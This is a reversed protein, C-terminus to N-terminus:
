INLWELSKNKSVLRYIVLGSLVFMAGLVSLTFSTSGGTKPLTQNPDKIITAIEEIPPTQNEETEQSNAIDKGLVGLVRINGIGDNPAEAAYSDMPIFLITLLSVLLIYYKM